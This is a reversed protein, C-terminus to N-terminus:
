HFSRDGFGLFRTHTNHVGKKLEARTRLRLFPGEQSTLFVPKNHSTIAPRGLPLLALQPEQAPHSRRRRAAQEAGGEM